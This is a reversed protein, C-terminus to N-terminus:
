WIAVGSGSVITKAEIDWVYGAGYDPLVVEADNTGTITCAGDVHLRRCPMGNGSVAQLNTAGNFALALMGTKGHNKNNLHKGEAM